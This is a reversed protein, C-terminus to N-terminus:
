HDSIIMRKQCIHTKKIKERDNPIDIYELSKTYDIQDLTIKVSSQNINLGLYKFAECHGAGITFTCKIPAIVNNKLLQRGGFPFNDVHMSLLGNLKAQVHRASVSPGSQCVVTNLDILEKRVNLHWSRLVENLGYIIINLKWM